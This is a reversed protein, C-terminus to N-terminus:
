FLASRSIQWSDGKRVVQCSGSGHNKAAFAVKYEILVHLFLSPLSHSWFSLLAFVLLLPPYHQLSHHHTLPPCILPIVLSLRTPCTNLQNSKKSVPKFVEISWALGETVNLENENQVLCTCRVSFLILIMYHLLCSSFWECTPLQIECPLVGSM